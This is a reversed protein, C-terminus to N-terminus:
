FAFITVYQEKIYSWKLDFHCQFEPIKSIHFSTSALKETEEVPVAKWNLNVEDATNKWVM